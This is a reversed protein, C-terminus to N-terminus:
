LRYFWSIVPFPIPAMEGEASLAAFGIQFIKNPNKTIRIGPVIVAFSGKKMYIFSDGIFSVKDSIRFLCGISLLPANGSFGSSSIMAYGGTLSLNNRANGFTVVGYPLLGSSGWEAWSLTGALLGLGFHLNDNASFSTKGSVVIPMALWTTMAGLTLGNAVSYQIEPGWYSLLAYSDGKRMRLGNTSLFYRSSFITTGPLTGSRVDGTSLERISKIEHKPIYLRGIEKTELLIERDDQSIIVGVYETGDNKTIVYSKKQQDAVKITDQAAVTLCICILVSAALIQKFVKRVKMVILIVIIYLSKEIMIDFNRFM